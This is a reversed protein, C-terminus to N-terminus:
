CDGTVPGPADCGTWGDPLPCQSWAEFVMEGMCVTATAPPCAVEGPMCYLFQPEGFCYDVEGEVIPQGMLGMCTADAACAKEDLDYCDDVGATTDTGDSTGATDDSGGSSESTAPATTTPATTDTGPSTTTPDSTPDTTTPGDTTGVTTGDAAGSDGDGTSDDGPCGTALGVCGVLTMNM